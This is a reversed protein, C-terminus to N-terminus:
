GSSFFYYLKCRPCFSLLELEINSNLCAALELFTNFGYFCVCVSVSSFYIDLGVISRVCNEQLSRIDIVFSLSSQRGFGTAKKMVILM